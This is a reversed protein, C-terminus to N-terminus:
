ILGQRHIESLFDAAIPQNQEGVLDMIEAVTRKGDCLALLLDGHEGIELNVTGRFDYLYISLHQKFLPAKTNPSSDQQMTIADQLAELNYHLSLTKLDSKVRPLYDNNLAKGGEFPTKRSPPPLYALHSRTVLPLEILAQIKPRKMTMNVFQKAQDSSIGNAIDYESHLDLNNEAVEDHISIGYTAPETFVRSGHFLRFHSFGIHTIHDSHTEVFEVTQWAEEISEGPFGIFFMPFTRIEAQTCRAMIRAVMDPDTGKYMLDLVRSVASELGFLLMICGGRAFEDIKKEDLYSEFRLESFWRWGLNNEHIAKALGGATAPPLAEDVLYFDSAGFKESLYALEDVVQEVSKKRHAGRYPLHHTCFTCNDWYCGRSTAYPLIIRPALYDCLPLGKFDPIPAKELPECFKDCQWKGEKVRFLGPVHEFSRGERVARVLELLPREGEFPILCDVFQSLPKLADFRERYASIFAGGVVIVLDNMASRLLSALAIVPGLQSCYNLSLGVIRPATQKITPIFEKFFPLFFNIGPDLAVGILSNLNNSANGLEFTRPTWSAPYHAAAIIAMARTVTLSQVAYKERSNYTTASCLDNLAQDINNTVEEGWMVAKTVAIYEQAEDRELTPRSDLECLREEIRPLLKALNNHKLLFRYSPLNLDLLEVNEGESKLFGALTSIGLPPYAPDSVPPYILLTNM